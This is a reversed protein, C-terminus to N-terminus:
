GGSVWKPRTAPLDSYEGGRRAVVGGCSLMGGYGMGGCYHLGDVLCGLRGCGVSERCFGGCGMVEAAGWPRLWRVTKM